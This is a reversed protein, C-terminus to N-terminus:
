SRARSFMATVAFQAEILALRDAAAVLAAEYEGPLMYGGNSLCKVETPTVQTAYTDPNQGVGCLSIEVVDASVIEQHTGADRRAWKGGLSFARLIGKKAADYIEAALTGAEPRPLLAEVFLGKARHVEAKIIRGIPPVSLMHSYLLVPNSAMFKSVTADLSYPDFADNQRDLSWCAAYGSLVLGDHNEAAPLETVSPIALASV